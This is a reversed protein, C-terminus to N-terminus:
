LIAFWDEFQTCYYYASHDVEMKMWRDRRELNAHYTTRKIDNNVKETRGVKAMIRMLYMTDPNYQTDAELLAEALTKAELKRYESCIPKYYDIYLVYKLCNNM